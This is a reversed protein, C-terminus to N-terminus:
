NTEKGKDLTKLRVSLGLVLNCMKLDLAYVAAVENLGMLDFIIRVNRDTEPIDDVVCLFLLRKVGSFSAIQSKM